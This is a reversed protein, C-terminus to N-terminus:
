LKKLKEKHHNQAAYKRSVQLILLKMMKQKFHMGFISLIYHLYQEMEYVQKKDITINNKKTYKHYNHTSLLRYNFM